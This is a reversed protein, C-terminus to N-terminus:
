PPAERLAAAAWARLVQYSAHSQAVYVDREYEDLGRHAGGGAATALPKSLLLSEEATRSGSLMSTARQYNAEIERETITAWIETAPDLRVCGPAFLRFPRGPDGHCAPFACDRALVPMVQDVFVTRDPLPIFTPELDVCGGMLGVGLAVALLAGRSAMSPHRGHRAYQDEDCERHDGGAAGGDRGPFAFGQRPRVHFEVPVPFEGRGLVVGDDHALARRAAQRAAAAAAAAVLTRSRIVLRRRWVLAALLLTLAIWPAPASQAPGPALQCSQVDTAPYSEPDITSARGPVPGADTPTVVVTCDAAAAGSVVLPDGPNGIETTRRPNLGFQWRGCPDGLEQGNTEGDGDSDEAYLMPWSQGVAVFRLGFADIPGTATGDHCAMCGAAAGNPIEGSWRPIASATAPGALVLLGGLVLTRRTNM